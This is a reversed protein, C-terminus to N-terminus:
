KRAAQFLPRMIKKEETETGASASVADATKLFDATEAGRDKVAAPKDSIKGYIDGSINHLAKVFDDTFTDPAATKEEATKERDHSNGSNSSFQFTFSGRLFRGKCFPKRLLNESSSITNRSIEATQSHEAEIDSSLADGLLGSILSRQADSMDASNHLNMSAPLHFVDNKQVDDSPAATRSDESYKEAPSRPDKLSATWRGTWHRSANKTKRILTFLDRIEEPEAWGNLSQDYIKGSNEDVIRGSKWDISIDQQKKQSRITRYTGNSNVESHKRTPIVAGCHPCQCSGSILENNCVKCRM